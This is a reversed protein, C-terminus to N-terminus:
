RSGEQWLVAPVTRVIIALDRKLSWNSVYDRDLAVREAYSCDSRGSTQWLGTIGPRVATYYVFDSNYRQIEAAVIPRPGVISMDGVIVNWLQPLEDLSSRRMINGLRTIRPDDTLKRSVSWEAAALADSRLLDHLVRDADVVMTRFKLCDFQRGDLGIRKHRFMIPRGQTVFLVVCLVLIMPSLVFLGFLALLVDFFRKLNRTLSKTRPPAAFDSLLFDANM